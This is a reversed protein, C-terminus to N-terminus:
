EGEAQDLVVDASAEFAPEGGRLVVVLEDLMALALVALGFAMGSQPIWLPIGVLGDSVEGFRWSDQALRVTHWAFYGILLVGLALGAADAARRKSSPLRSLLLTVRIHSGARFSYGLALFTSAAMFFGAMEVASPVLFGVFRGIIQALILVAIGALFLAALVGCALYLLNLVRRM